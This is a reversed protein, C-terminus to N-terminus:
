RDLTRADTVGGILQHITMSEGITNCRGRSGV